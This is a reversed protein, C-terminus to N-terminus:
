RMSRPSSQHSCGVTRAVQELDAHGSLILRICDPHRARVQDRLEAGNMRPMRTDSVVVDCPTQELALLAQAGGEVFCMDWVDRMPRPMRQLGQLIRPEDDVFLLRLTM